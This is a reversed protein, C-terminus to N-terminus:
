DIIFGEDIAGANPPIVSCVGSPLSLKLDHHALLTPRHGVSIWTLGGSGRMDRALDKLLNFMKKEALVDLASSSEDMVILRPRNVVLRGFALRQQEGLSLTQSYDKVADLGGSRSALNPLDVSDLVQLLEQDSWDRSLRRRASPDDDDIGIETSSFTTMVTSSPYLLQDRLSGPPCYPRQPLFFVHEYGPRVIEGNGAKWLGAIARLLSSKGAGSAGTILLNKGQTLSLNLNQVLVRSRDPTILKLDKISLIMPNAQTQANSYFTSSCVDFVKMSITEASIPNSSRRQSSYGGLLATEAPPCSLLAGIDREKDLVQIASMFSYLRDIGASFKSVDTFSNIVISLDDLIHGFASSAQSIVGLEVNGQFYQPAIVMIPLIWTIYNYMTTCFDLKLQAFNIQSMNAIVQHFRRCTEREEVAEGTYFAISESNERVRILSFRFDAEKALAEYNLRILVKGVCITVITGFAAFGFIALFLQPM